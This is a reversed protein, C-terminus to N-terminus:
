PMTLQRCNPHPITRPRRKWTTAECNFFSNVGQVKQIAPIPIVTNGGVFIDAAHLREDMRLPPMAVHCDISAFSETTIDTILPVDAAGGHIQFVYMLCSRPIDDRSDRLENRTHGQYKGADIQPENQCKFKRNRLFKRTVTDRDLM